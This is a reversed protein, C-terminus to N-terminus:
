FLSGLSSFKRALVYNHGTQCECGDAASLHCAGPALIATQSRGHEELNLLTALWGVLLNTCARRKAIWILKTHQELQKTLLKKTSSFRTHSKGVNAIDVGNGGTNVTLSLPTTGRVTSLQRIASHLDSFQQFPLPSRPPPKLLQSLIEYDAFYKVITFADGALRNAYSQIICHEVGPEGEKCGTKM